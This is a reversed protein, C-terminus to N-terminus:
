SQRITGSSFYSLIKLYVIAFKNIRSAKFNTVKFHVVLVILIIVLIGLEVNGAM